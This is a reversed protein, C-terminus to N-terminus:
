DKNLVWKSMKGDKNEGAYFKDGKIVTVCEDTLLQLNNEEDKYVLNKKNLKELFSDEDSGDKQLVDLFIDSETNMSEGNCLWTILLYESWSLEQPEWQYFVPSTDLDNPLEVYRFEWGINENKRIPKAGIFRFVAEMTLEDGFIDLSSIGHKYSLKTWLLELFHLLPNHSSSTYAEWFGNEDLPSVYPMGNAKILSSSRTFIQNPFTGPSFGKIPNSETSVHDQLFNIFGKRLSKMSSYGYFGFVIRLPMLTEILLTHYIMQIELNHNSIHKHEPVEMGVTSRFADRFLRFENESMDRPDFMESLKAMKFYSDLLDDKNLNKKVEIVAIVNSIDYIYKDTNPIPDGEGEVIMCDVEKSFEGDKNTIQGSSIRLDLGKFITNDLLKKAIGEYMDGIITSHITNPYKESYTNIKKEEEEKLKM